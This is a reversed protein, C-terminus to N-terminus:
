VPPTRPHTTWFTHGYGFSDAVPLARGQSGAGAPAVFRSPKVGFANTMIEM